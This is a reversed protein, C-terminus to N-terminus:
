SDGRRAAKREANEWADNVEQRGRQYAEERERAAAAHGPWSCDPVGVQPTIPYSTTAAVPTPRCACWVPGCTYILALTRCPCLEDVTVRESM